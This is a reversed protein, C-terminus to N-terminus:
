CTIVESPAAAHPLDPWGRGKVCIELGKFSHVQAGAEELLAKTRPNGDVMVCVRPALALVSCGLTDFEQHPVEVLRFGRALLSERFPVPLLPSNVL